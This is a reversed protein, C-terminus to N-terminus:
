PLVSRTQVAHPSSRKVSAPLVVEEYNDIICFAFAGKVVRGPVM